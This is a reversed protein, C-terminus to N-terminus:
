TLDVEGAGLLLAYSSVAFGFAGALIVWYRLVLIEQYIRTVILRLLPPSLVPPYPMKAIIGDCMQSETDHNFAICLM